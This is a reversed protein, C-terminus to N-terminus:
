GYTASRHSVSSNLTVCDGGQEESIKGHGILLMETACPFNEPRTVVHRQVHSSVLTASRKLPFDTRNRNLPLPIGTTPHLIGAKRYTAPLHSDYHQYFM